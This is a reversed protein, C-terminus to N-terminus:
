DPATCVPSRTDIKQIMSNVEAVKGLWNTRALKRNDCDQTSNCHKRNVNRCWRKLCSPCGRVYLYVNGFAEFDTCACNDLCLIRHFSQAEAATPQIRIAQRRNRLLHGDFCPPTQFYMRTRQPTTPLDQLGHKLKFQHPFRQYTRKSACGDSVIIDKSTAVM